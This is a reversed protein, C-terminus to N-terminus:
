SLTSGARYIRIQQIPAHLAMLSKSGITPWLYHASIADM